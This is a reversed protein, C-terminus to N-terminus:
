KKGAKQAAKKPQAKKKGDVKKKMQLRLTKMGGAIKRSM